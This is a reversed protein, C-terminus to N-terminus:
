QQRTFYANGALNVVLLALYTIFLVAINLPKVMLFGAAFLAVTAFLKLAEGIYLGRVAGAPSALASPGFVFRVFLAQPVVFVLGGLAASRAANVGMFAYLLLASVTTFVVAAALMGYAAAKAKLNENQQDAVAIEAAVPAIWASGPGACSM